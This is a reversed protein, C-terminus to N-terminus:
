LINNIYCFVVPVTKNGAEAGIFDIVQRKKKTM